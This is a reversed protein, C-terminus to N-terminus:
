FECVTFKKSLFILISKIDDAKSNEINCFIESIEVMSIGTSESIENISVGLRCRLENLLNNMKFVEVYITLSISDCITFM